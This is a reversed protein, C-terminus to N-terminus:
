DSRQDESSRSRASVTRAEREAEIRKFASIFTHSPHAGSIAYTGNLVFHPVSRIGMQHGAAEEIKVDAVGADSLLFSEVKAPELGAQVATQALIMVNGIDLGEVFYAHFLAEVTEDQRGQREAYWILRHAALTNPTRQMKEFAFPIREESGAALLHKEMQHFADLSGFKAKLYTTREMGEKPMAPNLQFPRWTVQAKVSEELLELSRELRRKGVYCWPCVVDSYIEVSVTTFPKKMDDNM